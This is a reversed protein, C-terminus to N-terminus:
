KRKKGRPKVIIQRAPDNLAVELCQSADLSRDQGNWLSYGQTAFEEACEEIAEGNLGDYELEKLVLPRVCTESWCWGYGLIFSSAKFACESLLAGVPM